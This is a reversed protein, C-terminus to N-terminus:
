LGLKKAVWKETAASLMDKWSNFNTNESIFTDLENEPISEIDSFDFGSSIAFEDFSNFNSHSQTFSDTFLETLPVSNEGDINKAAQQMSNLKRSLNDLGSIKFNKGM